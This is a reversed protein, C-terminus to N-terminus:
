CPATFRQNNITSKSGDNFYYKWLDKGNLVAHGKMFAIVAPSMEWTGHPVEDGAMHIAPLPAGSEQYIIKIEDMVKELFTYFLAANILNDNFFQDSTHHNNEILQWDAPSKPDFDIRTKCFSAICGGSLVLISTFVIFRVISM